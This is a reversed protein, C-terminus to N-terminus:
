RAGRLQRMMQLGVPHQPNRQLLQELVQGAERGRGMGFYVRALTVYAMEFAPDKELLLQLTRIAGAADQQAMYVLALNTAAEGYSARRALAEKFYVAARDLEGQKGYFIGLNNFAEPFDPALALAKEYLALAQKEDGTQFLAFGLNNLADAFDPRTQLAARFRAIGGPVDGNQALLAGLSNNAEAYDPKLALARDLAARGEAPRRHKIYLTALNYLTIANPDRAAAREFAGLAAKEFGQEALDLAYPFDNRPEPMSYLTGKFPLARALREAPPATLRAVDAVVDAAAVTDRYAKVIDGKENILFATPVRLAERRAFVFRNTVAYAGATEEDARVVPLSVGAAAARVDRENEAVDLSLAIVSVGAPTLEASHKSLEQLADRSPPAWTAWLLLLAPKGRLASLSVKKGDLDSGTFDPAPYPEYLWTASPPALPAPPPAAASASATRFAESTAKDKGEELVVRRDVPVDTFTQELGSPWAV